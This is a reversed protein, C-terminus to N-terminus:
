EQGGAAVGAVSDKDNRSQKLTMLYATLDRKEDGTFSQRPEITGPVLAQPNDLWADIWAPTLWNGANNLSPGVYGGSSGITHCSQCKFKEDFLRKGHDAMEPTFKREDGAEPHVNPNQLKSSLYDAIINADSESMNFHPM